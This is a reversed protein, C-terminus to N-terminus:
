CSRRATRTTTGRRPKQESSRATRAHASLVGRRWLRHSASRYRWCRYCPFAFSNSPGAAAAVGARGPPPLPPCKSRVVRASRAVIRSDLRSYFGYGRAWPLMRFEVPVHHQVTCYAYLPTSFFLTTTGNAFTLKRGPVKLESSHPSSREKKVRSCGIAVMRSGGDACTM